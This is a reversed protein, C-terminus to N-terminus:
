GVPRKRPSLIKALMVIDRADIIGDQNVDSGWTGRFTGEPARFREVGDGDLIERSLAVLDDNNVRGNGDVDGPKPSNLKFITNTTAIYITGNSDQVVDMLSDAIKPVDHDPDIRASQLGNTDLIRIPKKISTSASDFWFLSKDWYATMLMGSAFYPDTRNIMTMGTPAVTELFVYSPAKTGDILQDNGMTMPWGLNDGEVVINIEDGAVPGNDAVILHGTAPDYAADYPNRLGSAFQKVTNDPLIKYIKGGPINPNQAAVRTGYDGIGFFFSGDPGAAINGGHHETPCVFIPDCRLHAIELRKSTSLDLVEIVDAALDPSVFHALLEDHGRFAVGLLVANGEVATDFKAIETSKGGTVRYVEGTAVSYHLETGNRLALSTIFNETSAVKQLSFGPIIEARADAAAAICIAVFLRSWLSM